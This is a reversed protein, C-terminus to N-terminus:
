NEDEYKALLNGKDFIREDTPDILLMTPLTLLGVREYSDKFNDRQILVDLCTTLISIILFLLVFFNNYKYKKYDNILVFVFAVLVILGYRNFVYPFLFTINAFVLLILLISFWKNEARNINLLAYITILYYWLKGFFIYIAHGTNTIVFEKVGFYSLYKQLFIIDIEVYPLLNVFFLLFYEAPVFLFIFSFFYLIKLLKLNKQFLIYLFTAIFFVVTSFHISSAFLLSILGKLTQNKVLSLYLGLVVFSLSFYFRLGSFLPPLSLSCILTAFLTFIMFKSLKNEIVSKHFIYFLVGMSIATVSGALFSFSIGLHSFILILYWFTVDTMNKEIYLIADEFSMSSFFNYLNFYYSKDGGSSPIYFYSLIFFIGVFLIYGAKKNLYIDRFILPISLVPSMLFLLASKPFTSIM